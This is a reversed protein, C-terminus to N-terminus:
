IAEQIDNHELRLQKNKDKWVDLAEEYSGHLKILEKKTEAPLSDFTPPVILRIVQADVDILKTVAEANDIFIPASFGYHEGLTNIIDLGVNIRAANNLGGDYPVGNYLTDCVDDLGGNLQQKFMRFRAHKFKSNIKSELLTTKARTFEETLFLEHELREYETALKREQATLEAIRRETAKAQDIKAKDAELDAIQARLVRIESQVATVADASFSRLQEIESRINEAEQQKAQYEPSEAPDAVGAQLDSHTVEAASVKAQKDELQEQLDALSQEVDFMSHKLSRVEAAAAKGDASIQELRQSKSLNFDALEKDKAAQVQDDPLTQGCTPCNKDHEHEHSPFELSNAVHWEERLHAAQSEAREIQRKYQEVERQGASLRAQLDSAEGRVQLLRERQDNVAQMSNAQLRHKIDTLEAGIERLRIEKASLEGGSQIRQLEATKNDVRSRLTEIDEALLEADM